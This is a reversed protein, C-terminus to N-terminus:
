LIVGPGPPSVPLELLLPPLSGPPPPTVAVGGGAGLLTLVSAEVTFPNITALVVLAARLLKM